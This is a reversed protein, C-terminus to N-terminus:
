GLPGRASESLGTRKEASEAAASEFIEAFGGMALGPTDESMVWFTGNDEPEEPERTLLAVNYHEICDTFNFIGVHRTAFLVWMGDCAHGSQEVKAIGGRRNGRWEFFRLLRAQFPDPYEDARSTGFWGYGYETKFTLLKGIATTAAYGLTSTIPQSMDVPVCGIPQFVAGEAATCDRVSTAQSSEQEPIATRAHLLSKLFRWIMVSM